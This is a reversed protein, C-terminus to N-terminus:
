MPSVNVEESLGSQETAQLVSQTITESSPKQQMEELQFSLNGLIRKEFATLSALLDSNSVFQTSLWQMLSGPLNVDKQESGYLLVQLEKKVQASIQFGFLVPKLIVQWLVGCDLHLYYYAHSKSHWSPFGATRM